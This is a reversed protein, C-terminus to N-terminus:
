TVRGGLKSLKFSLDQCLRLEKDVAEQDHLAEAKKLREMAKAFNNKLTEEEFHRLLAEGVKALDSEGGYHMEIEFLLASRDGEEAVLSMIEPSIRKLKEEFEAEYPDQKSRIWLLFGLIRDRTGAEEPKASALPAAVMEDDKIKALEERLSNESIGSAFSVKQLYRSGDIPSEVSKILPLIKEKLVKDQAKTDIELKMAELFYDIVNQSSEIAGGWIKPDKGITDAPDLGNPLLAIRVELGLSLALKWARYTASRGANDADYAIVVAPALRKIMQLHYDTLATGSTAVTNAFGAQHSLLLDMQGEVIIGFGKERIAFKAKHYGYLSKSKDFLPTDPSNLYKPEEDKTLVRGSFGNVRGATDFIPFMIRGRFRDYSEGSKDNEKILGADLLERETFGKQKMHEKLARWEAKAFGLRWERLTEIALNRTKLYILADKETKLNNQFFEAAVETAETLREKPDAAADKEFREIPVGARDALLKLATVFDVGEFEQVFTFIDGKVGCGFCYYNGREASIFFSPTKENHFPCKAKLSSGSRAVDIYSGIVDAIPLREKIKQVTSSSM